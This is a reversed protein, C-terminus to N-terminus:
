KGGLPAFMARFRDQLAVDTKLANNAAQLKGEQTKMKMDFIDMSKGWGFQERALALDEAHLKEQSANTMAAGGINSLASLAMGGGFLLLTLPDM